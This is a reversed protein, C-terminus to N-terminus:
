TYIIFILIIMMIIFVFFLFLFLSFFLSPSFFLLSNYFITFRFYIFQTCMRTWDLFLLLRSKVDEWAIFAFHCAFPLSLCTHADITCEENRDYLSTIVSKHKIYNRWCEGFKDSTGFLVLHHIITSTVRRNPRLPRLSSSLSLHSRLFGNFLIKDRKFESYKLSLESRKSFVKFFNKKIFLFTNWLVIAFLFTFGLLDTPTIYWM